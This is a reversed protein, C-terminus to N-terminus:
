TVYCFVIKIWTRSLVLDGTTGAQFKLVIIGTLNGDRERELHRQESSPNDACPATHHSLNSHFGGLLLIFQKERGSDQLPRWLWRIFDHYHYDCRGTDQECTPVVALIDWLAETDRLWQMVKITPRATIFNKMYLVTMKNASLGSYTEIVFEVLIKKCLETM